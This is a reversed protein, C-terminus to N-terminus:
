RIEKVTLDLTRSTVDGAPMTLRTAQVSLAELRKPDQWLASRAGDIAVVFYDGAPLFAFTYAGTRTTLASRLDRPNTGYGVWRSRDVPFALVVATSSVAGRADRVTGLLNATRDTYTVVLSTVDSQLDFPRDTIDKGDLTISQVYWGSLEIPRIIYRGATAVAAFTRDGRGEAFVRGPEGFPTEFAIAARTLMVPAPTTGSPEPVVVRGEIRLAPRMTVVLDSIDNAGVTIRQSFWHAVPGQRALFPNAQRLVYEGPPVGLLLFRGSADTLGSATEFGAPPPGSGSLLGSDNVDAAGEGVLRITTLPPASGDPLVLRGSIRVAPVPRLAITLDSREEGSDLPIQSAGAVTNSSPFYTTRYTEARGDPRTPPPILVRTLTLLAFDGVHLTRPQGLPAVEMIGGFFLESRLAPDSAGADLTAVPITTQASPVLVVYTGPVLQTLRFRGRDDTVATPFLGYAGQPGGFLYRGAVVDKILARVGVGVVPEGAEDVVTGAIVAHKWITLTVDTRREGEALAFLQGQTSTAQRQGYRGQEYGDKTAALYYEGAPLDAFFYRGEADAMVRGNPTTPLTDLYKPMVLRVIAEPVPHGAADVVQGAIMGTRPGAPAGNAPIIQRPSAAARVVLALLVVVPALRRPDAPWAM